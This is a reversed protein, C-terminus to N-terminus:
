ENESEPNNNIFSTSFNKKQMELLYSPCIKIIRDNAKIVVTEYYESLCNSNTKKSLYGIIECKYTNTDNKYYLDKEKEAKPSLLKWEKLKDLKENLDNFSILSDLNIENSNTM